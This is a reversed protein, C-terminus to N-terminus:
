SPLSRLGSCSDMDLLLDPEPNRRVQGTEDRWTLGALSGLPAQDQWLNILAPFSTEAEGRVVADVWPFHQLTDEDTVTAQPGGFVIRAHPSKQRCDQALSLTQPYSNCMTTFGIVDPHDAEILEAMQATYDPGDVAQGRLLSLAQDVITVTHGQDKLCAGLGLLNLPVYPDPVRGFHWMANFCTVLTVRM